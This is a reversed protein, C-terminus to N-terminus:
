RRTSRQSSVPSELKKGGLRLGVSTVLIAVWGLDGVREYPTKGGEMLPVYATLVAEQERPARAVVRGLPDIWATVGTNVARVLARRTEIARPIAELLHLEPEAGHGFWADNTVNVLLNPGAATVRRAAGPLTDEYCNLVGARVKPGKGRTELLAVEKGPVLGGGRAFTRRLWPITDGLPVYEGFALLAMKAAVPQTTGDVGVLTAGNYSWKTGPEAGPPAPAETLVGTLIEATAGPPRIRTPGVDRIPTSPLTWPYAAEPWIVLSAGEREAIKTLRWLKQQIAPFASPEWRVKPAVAHQVLGVRVHPAGEAAADVSPARALGYAILAFPIALAGGAFAWRRRGAELWATALLGATAAVLVAVGREGIVEAFQMAIPARGLPAGITWVFLQPVALALAAGAALSLALPARRRILVHAIAAVVWPIAQGAALLVLATFAAIWPLDTFDTITGIVFRFVLLNAAFGFFFGRLAARRPPAGELSVAFLALGLFVCVLLASPFPPASMAVFLGGLPALARDLWTRLRVRAIPSLNM